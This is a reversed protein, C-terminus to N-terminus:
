VLQLGFSRSRFEELAHWLRPFESFKRPREKIKEDRRCGSKVADMQWWAGALDAGSLAVWCFTEAKNSFQRFAPNLCIKGDPL